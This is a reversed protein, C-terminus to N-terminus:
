QLFKNVKEIDEIILPGVISKLALASLLFSYKSKSLIRKANYYNENAILVDTTTKLGVAYSKEASQLFKEASVVSQELSNIQILGDYVNLYYQRTTLEITHELSQLQYQANNKNYKASKSLDNTSGGKFLNMSLAVGVSSSYGNYETGNPLSNYNAGQTGGYTAVLAINPYYQSNAIDIDQQLAMINLQSSLIDLNNTKALSIWTDLSAGDLSIDNINNKIKKYSIVQYNLYNNLQNQKVEVNHLATIEQSEVQLYKSKIEEVDIPRSKGVKVQQEVQKMQTLLSQKQASAYELDDMASLVEFYYQTTKLFLSNKDKELILRAQKELINAKSYQNFANVSFIPQSLSIGFQVPKDQLPTTTSNATIEGKNINYSGQLDLTPYVYSKYSSVFSVNANYAEVKAKYDYNNELAKQLVQLLDEAKLTLCSILYLGIILFKIM